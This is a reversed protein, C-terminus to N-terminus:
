PKAAYRRAIYRASNEIYPFVTAENINLQDLEKLIKAKNSVTFRTVQVDANGGEPLQADRGFLLFAGSQFSIRTNSRKGKVCVVRGIDSPKIEPEFFHKEERVFHLLRKIAPQENFLVLPLKDDISDKAAQDLRALNAICSATDSDFYRVLDSKISLVIVEGSPSRSPIKPDSCAFFLAILPNSTIDLLRTPLSYHQMRVLKDFTYIDQDFDASNSILLERFLRHEEQLYIYNGKDDRRFLSPELLYTRSSHGRYFVDRDREQTLALVQKTFSSVSNIRRPPPTPSPLTVTPSPAPLPRAQVGAKGLIGFLDAGKVAWHTRNLEWDRIDLAGHWPKLATYSIPPSNHDIEFAIRIRSGRDDIATLRGVRMPLDTGEYAFL